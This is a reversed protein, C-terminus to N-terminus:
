CLVASELKDFMHERIAAISGHKTNVVCDGRQMRVDANFTVRSNDTAPLLGSQVNRLLALDEPHLLVEYEATEQLGTLARRVVREVMESDIPIDRVVQRAAELALLVISKECDAIIGPLAREMSRVIGNQLDLLQKRQDLLQQALSKQGADFGRQFSEEVLERTKRESVLSEAGGKLRVDRLFAGPALNHRSSSM